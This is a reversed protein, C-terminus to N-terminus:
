SPLFTNVDMSCSALPLVVTVTFNFLSKVDLDTVVLVIVTFPSSPLSPLGPVSATTVTPSFPSGPVLPLSPLGPESPIMPTFPLSPEATTILPLSPDIPKFPLSPLFPREMLPSLPTTPTSPVSPALPLSPIVRITYSVFCGSGLWAPLSIVTFCSTAVISSPTFYAPSSACSASLDLTIALFNFWVTSIIPPAALSLNVSLLMPTFLTSPLNFTCNALSKVLILEMVFLSFLPFTSNLSLPTVVKLPPLASSLATDM